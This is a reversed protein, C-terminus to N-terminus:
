KSKLIRMIDDFKEEEEEDGEEDAYEIGLMNMLEDIRDLCTDVYQQEQATVTEGDELRALISDLRDDSELMELEKEPTLKEKAVPKEKVVPRATPKNDEVI